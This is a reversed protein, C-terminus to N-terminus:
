KGRVMASIQSLYTELARRRQSTIRYHTTPKEDKFRKSEDVYGADRLKKMHAGLNGDSAALQDKLQVFSATESVALLTLAALRLRSQLVADLRRHDYLGSM